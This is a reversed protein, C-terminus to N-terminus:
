PTGITMVAERAEPHTQDVLNRFAVRVDDHAVHFLYRLQYEHARAGDPRAILEAIVPGWRVLSALLSADRRGDRLLWLGIQLALARSRAAIDQDSLGVLDDVIIRTNLVYARLEPLDDLLPDVLEHLSRPATWGRAGHHLVVPIVVPLRKAGPNKRRFESWIRLAYESARLPMWADPRSQHEFLVHVRLDHADTTRMSFLLDTHRARLSEDVYSGPERKLTTWDIRAVLAQPLVARLEDAAHELDAFLRRAFADHPQLAHPM